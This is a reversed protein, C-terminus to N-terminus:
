WLGAGHCSHRTMGLLENPVSKAHLCSERQPEQLHEWVKPFDDRTSQYAFWYSTSRSQQAKTPM